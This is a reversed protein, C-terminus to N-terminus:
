LNLTLRVQVTNLKATDEYAYNRMDGDISDFSYQVWEAGVSLHETMHYNGGVGFAAGATEYSGGGISTGDPNAVDTSGTLQAVGGLAYVDFTDNSYGVKLTLDAVGDYDVACLQCVGHCLSEGGYGLATYQLEAGVLLGSGTVYDVGVFVASAADDLDFGIDEADDDRFVLEFDNNLDSVGTSAGVYFTLDADASEYVEPTGVVYDIGGYGEVEVIPDSLGGASLASACLVGIGCAISLLTTKRM